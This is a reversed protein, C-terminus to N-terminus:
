IFYIYLTPLYSLFIQFSSSSSSSSSNKDRLFPELNLFAKRRFPADMYRPSIIVIALILNRSLSYESKSGVSEGPFRIVEAALM